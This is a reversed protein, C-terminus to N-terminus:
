ASVRFVSLEYDRVFDDELNVGWCAAPAGAPASTTLTHVAASAGMSLAGFDSTYRAYDNSLDKLVTLSALLADLPERDIYAVTKPANRSRLAKVFLTDWEVENRRGCREMAGVVSAFVPKVEFFLDQSDM